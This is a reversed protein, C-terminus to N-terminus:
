HVYCWTVAQGCTRCPPLVDGGGIRIEHSHAHNSTRWTGGLQRPVYEGTRHCIHM